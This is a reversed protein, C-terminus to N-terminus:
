AADDASVKLSSDNRAGSTPAPFRSNDTYMSVASGGGKPRPIVTHKCYTQPRHRDREHWRDRPSAAHQTEATAGSRISRHRLWGDSSEVIELLYGAGSRVFKNRARLAGNLMMPSECHREGAAGSRLRHVGDEGFARRLIRLQHVPRSYLNQKPILAVHRRSV